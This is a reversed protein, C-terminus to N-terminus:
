KAIMPVTLIRAIANASDIDPQGQRSYYSSFRSLIDKVFHTSVQTHPSDYDKLCQKLSMTSLKRFNVFGGPFFTTAPLWHYFPSFSNTFFKNLIQKKEDDGGLKELIHTYCKSENDIEVLLLRDTKMQGAARLVLDCAPNLVICHGSGAKQKIISGTKFGKQLPPFIYMEEPHSPNEDNGLLELLHNLVLRLISRETEKGESSYKKWTDLHPLLHGWFIGQMADEIVGRGGMIRTLGTKYIEYFKDFIEGYDIEGKKYCGLYSCEAQANEPTGTLIILPIRRRSHIDAIVDNGETTDSGSSLKLDIIAGDFTSDLASLAEDKSKKVVCDITYEKQMNYRKVTSLCAEIDSDTDEVLLLRMEM